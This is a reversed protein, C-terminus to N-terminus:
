QNNRRLGKAGNVVPQHLTSYAAASEELETRRQHNRRREGKRDCVLECGFGNGLSESFHNTRRNDPQVKLVACTTGLRKEPWRMGIQTIQDQVNDREFIV